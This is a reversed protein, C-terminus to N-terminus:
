GGREEKEFYPGTVATKIRTVFYCPNQGGINNVTWSNETRQM